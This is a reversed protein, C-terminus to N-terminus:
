LGQSAAPPPTMHKISRELLDDSRRLLREFQDDTIQDEVFLKIISKSVNDMEKHFRQPDESYLEYLPVMSKYLRNYRKNRRWVKRGRLGALTLVLLSGVAAWGSPSVAWVSASEQFAQEISKTIPGSVVKLSSPYTDGRELTFTATNGTPVGKFPPSMEKVETNAPMIVDIVQQISFTYGRYYSSFDIECTYNSSQQSLLHAPAEFFCELTIGSAVFDEYFEWRDLSGLSVPTLDFGTLLSEVRGESVLYEPVRTIHFWFWLEAAHNTENFFTRVKATDLPVGYWQMDIQWSMNLWSGPNEQLFTAFEQFTGFTQGYYQEAQGRVIQWNLREYTSVFIDNESVLSQRMSAQYWSGDAIWEPPAVRVGEESWKVRDASPEIVDHIQWVETEACLGVTSSFVLLLAFIIILFQVYLVARRTKM